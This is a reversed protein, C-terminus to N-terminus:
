DPPYYRDSLVEAIKSSKNKEPAPSPLQHATDARYSSRDSVKKATLLSLLLVLGLAPGLPHVRNQVYLDTAPAITNGPSIPMGYQSALDKINLLHVFPVGAESLRTLVGRDRDSCGQWTNHLGNPITSSHVCRGVAAQNGGINVLLNIASRSMLDTKADIAEELSAPEFLTVGNREAAAKLVAVGDEIMGQGNDSEAGLTVVSSRYRLDGNERLWSEMDMWTADAQNAGYMSAGLSSVLVVKAGLTQAAALTAISLTPFSGSQLIGITSHSDMGAELFLRLMLAAFDPNAATEKAELSGLTTTQYTYEDGIMGAFRTASHNDPKIGLSQKTSGVIDFWRACLEAAEHMQAAEDCEKSEISWRQVVVVAVIAVVLLSVLQIHSWTTRM